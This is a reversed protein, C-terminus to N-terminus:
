FQIGELFKKQFERVLSLELYKIQGALRLAKQYHGESVLSLLAGKGAANGISKVKEEPVPPLLGVTILSKPKLAAGFAGALMIEELDDFGIGAEATLIEVGARMAGKALQLQNIDGQTLYVKPTLHFLRGKEDRDLRKKIAPPFDESLSGAEKLRGTRTLLGKGLMGAVADLLGSGCLGRASRSGIISLRLDDSMEVTFIAGPEARMGFKIGGGELAPGAATSCAWIQGQFALAIEGNTGIDLLLRPPGPEDLGAALAAAVLDAGVYASVLPLVDVRTCYPLRIGAQSATLTLPGSFGPTFPFSALGRPNIGLFLHMMAPNGVVTVLHIKERLGPNGPFLGDLLEDITATAAQRLVTGGEPHDMTYGIRSIVDAGFLSQKNLAAGTALIRGSKLDVLYGAVTTTGLDVALGYSEGAKEVRATFDTSVRGEIEKGRLGPDRPLRGTFVEMGERVQTQCALRLGARVEEASLFTQEIETLAGTEGATIKVLCKGCKGKGGCVSELGVGASLAAEFVTSGESVPVRIKQPEFTILPGQSM